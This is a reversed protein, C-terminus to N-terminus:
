IPALSRENVVETQGSGRRLPYLGLAIVLTLIIKSESTKLLAQLYRGCAIIKIYTVKDLGGSSIMIIKGMNDNNKLFSTKDKILYDKLQNIFSM